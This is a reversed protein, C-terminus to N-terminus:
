IKEVIIKNFNKEFNEKNNKALFWIGLNFIIIIFILFYSMIQYSNNLLTFIFFIYFLSTILIKKRLVSFVRLAHSILGFFNMKSNGSYRKERNLTIYEIKKLNSSIVPPLASWIDSNRFLSKIHASFIISFNGFRIKKLSFIIILYCYIEYCIKFWLKENRQGRNAVISHNKKRESANIMNIIGEPNDQGDSDMVILKFNNKFNLFIYKLGIALARQSGLNKYLNIIRVQKIQSLKLKKLDVKQTSCDNVIILTFTKKFKYKFIHNVKSLLKALNKWDNYVPTLMIFKTNM